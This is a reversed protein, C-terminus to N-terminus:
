LLDFEDAKVATLFARWADTPFLLAPSAPDKSDRVPVLGTFDPAIEVCNGSNGSHRSKVWRAGHLDITAMQSGRSEPRIRM